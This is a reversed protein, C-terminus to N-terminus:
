SVTGYIQRKNINSNTDRTGNGNVVLCEAFPLPIICQFKIWLQKKKSHREDALDFQTSIQKLVSPLLSYRLGLNETRFLEIM